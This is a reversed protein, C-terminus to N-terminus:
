SSKVKYKQVSAKVIKKPKVDEDSESEDSDSETESESDTLEEDLKGSHGSTSHGSTSSDSGAKTKKLTAVEKTKVVQTNKEYFQVFEDFYKVNEDYVAKDFGGVVASGIHNICSCIWNFLIDDTKFYHKLIYNHAMIKYQCSTNYYNILKSVYLLKLKPFEIKGSLYSMMKTYDEIPVKLLNTLGDDILLMKIGGDTKEIIHELLGFIDGKNITKGTNKIVSLDYIAKVNNYENILMKILKADKDSLDLTDLWVIKDHYQQALHANSDTITTINYTTKLYKIYEEFHRNILKNGYTCKFTKNLKSIFDYKCEFNNVIIKSIGEAYGLRGTTELDSLSM